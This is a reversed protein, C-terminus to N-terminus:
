PKKLIETATGGSTGGTAAGNRDKQLCQDRLSGSLEDCRKQAEASESPTRKPMGASEGPAISTGGKVAGGNLAGDAPRSGDQSMGPPTSGRVGDGAKEGPSQAFAIACCLSVTVLFLAETLFWTAQTRSFYM